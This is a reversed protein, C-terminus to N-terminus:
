CGSKWKGIADILENINVNGLKWEGIYDILENISVVGDSDSDSSGCLSGGISYSIVLKPRQASNSNETSIFSRHSDSETYDESVILLGYNESPNNIWDQVMSSIDWTKYGETRDAYVTDAVEDIDNLAMPMNGNCCLYGLYNEYYSGSPTVATWPNSNSYYYGCAESFVSNHNIIKHATLEYSSDQTTDWEFQYLHLDADTIFASSPIASLDIKMLITNAIVNAPYTYTNLQTSGANIEYGRGGQNLFTDEITGTYDSDPTDGFTKTVQGQLCDNDTTSTCGSPCCGDDYQCGVDQYVCQNSVCSKTMCQQDQCDNADQCEECDNDNSVSCGIPCCNDNNVCSTIPTNQCTPNCTGQSICSDITCSDQDNCNPCSPPLICQSNCCIQPSTCGCDAPCSSCTEGPDCTGDPCTSPQSDPLGDWIELDDLAHWVEGIPNHASWNSILVLLMSLIGGSIEGDPDTWTYIANEWTEDGDVDYWIATQGTDYNVYLAFKHWTRDDIDTHVPGYHYSGEAYISFRKDQSIYFIVDSGSQEFRVLKLKTNTITNEWGDTAMWFRIFVEGTTISLASDWTGQGCNFYDNGFNGGLNDHPNIVPATIGSVAPNLDVSGHNLLWFYPGGHPSIGDYSNVVETGAAHTDCYENYNSSFPYSPTSVISGEWDEFGYEFVKTAASVSEGFISSMLVVVLMFLLYKKVM